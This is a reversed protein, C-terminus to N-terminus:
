NLLYLHKARNTRSCRTNIGQPRLGGPLVEHAELSPALSTGACLMAQGCGATSASSEAWFRDAPAVLGRM